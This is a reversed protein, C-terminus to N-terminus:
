RKLSVKSGDRDFLQPYNKTRGHIQFAGVDSSGDRKVYNRRRQVQDAIEKTTMPGGGRERLIAEIEEHLTPMGDRRRPKPPAEKTPTPAPGIAGDLAKFRKRADSVTRAFPHAMNGALNLPPKLAAIVEHEITWPEPHEAWMLRLNEEQWETLRRNDKATLIVRDSTRVREYGESELLLSALTLRFTSAGTNGRIHNGVVRSRITASSTARSPAIGIYFLHLGAKTPHPCAPVDPISGERTWWAYFGSAAPLGGVLPALDLPLPGGVLERVIRDLDSV